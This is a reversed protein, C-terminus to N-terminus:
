NKVARWQKARLNIFALWQSQKHGESQEGCIVNAAGGRLSRCHWKNWDASHLRSCFYHSASEEITTWTFQLTLSHSFYPKM